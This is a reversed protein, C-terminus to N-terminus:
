GQGRTSPQKDCDPHPCTPFWPNTIVCPMCCFGCEECLTICVCFTTTGAATTQTEPFNV